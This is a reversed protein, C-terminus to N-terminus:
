ATLLMLFFSVIAPVFPPDLKRELMDQWVVDRFWPHRKIEDADEVTSGLREEPKKTLLKLILDMADRDMNAPFLPDKYLISNFIEDENEGKFPAQGLLLEYILVGYSWWDVSRTYPKEMLIEPSMFEPTGCFTTTKSGFPMGEKCLGYDAIKIHGDLTLLINDLKLDRYIIDNKHFYELALLVECAYFKARAESFHQQQIHWMLDGGSVYEMVFYLRSETQFCSHLNVMFPFRELNATMFVRKESRTAEVEDSEIIFEKKLVKIAYYNGTAKEEALMVKGFNGKGLVALFTFDDLGVNKGRGKKVPPTAGKGSGASVRVDAVSLSLPSGVGKGAALAAAASAAAAAASVEEERKRAAEVLAAERKEREVVERERKVKEVMEVAGRMQERMAATMGCADPVLLSCNSHASVGCEGCKKCGRKTVPLLQGCHACWSVGVTDDTWRHPIRHYLHAIEDPEDDAGSALTICKIPVRPQCKKHCLYKCSQCQYGQASTLFEACVACKM